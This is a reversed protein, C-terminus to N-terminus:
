SSVPKLESELHFGHQALWTLAEAKTEVLNVEEKKLNNGLYQELTYRKIEAYETGIVFVRHTRGNKKVWTEIEILAEDIDAANLGWKRTDILNAWPAGAFQSVQVKLQRFARQTDRLTLTGVVKCILINGDRLFTYASPKNM